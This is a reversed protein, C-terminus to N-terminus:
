SRKRTSAKFAAVGAAAVAAVGLGIAIVKCSKWFTAAGKLAAKQADAPRPGDKLHTLIVGAQDRM